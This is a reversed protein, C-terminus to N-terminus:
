TSAQAAAVLVDIGAAHSAASTGDSGGQWRDRFVGEGDRANALASDANRKLFDTYAQQGENENLTSLGRVYAGKFMAGQQDLPHQVPETLVGNDSLRGISSSALENAHRILDGDGKARALESLGALVVGQNYTYTTKGDNQCTNKDIGDNVLGDGNIVGSEWFWDWEMQAWNQYNAKESAPVRNALSAGVALFLENSIAAISEKPKNWWIGGCPTTWGTTMDEFLDKATNLYKQDGTLDYSAIWGMAWWGEDDYFDNKWDSYGKQNRSKDYTNSIIDIAAQKFDEDQKGFKAITEVINGSQWWMDDWLGTDTSYWKDQLLKIASEADSAYDAYATNLLLLAVTLSPLHKMVSIHM